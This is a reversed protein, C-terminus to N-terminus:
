INGIKEEERLARMLPQTTMAFLLPALPCGQRVGREIKIEETFCGNIHVESTGGEVLGKIRGVTEEGMDMTTLTDWLFGHAVRDYAKMFDLKVFIVDQGIVQAWEQGLRLTLINDIINRGAVFGTQQRDILEPLIGKLRTALIAVIMVGDIGPSKEKPMDMVIQTILDENLVAELTLNDCTSMMRDIRGVVTRKKDLVEQTEEEAKYLDQYFKHLEELIEEPEEVITDTETEIATMEEHAHKAKLRAFFYKSPAEEEKIWTIKCRRSCQEAEQHEKKRLETLAEELEERAELSRDQHIRRRAAELRDEQNGKEEEKRKEELRVEMLLKRIRGLALAWRKRKDKAWHPHERWAIRARDLVELKMLIKYEM